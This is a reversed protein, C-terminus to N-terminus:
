DRLLFIYDVAAVASVATCDDIGTNEPGVVVLGVSSCRSRIACGVYGLLATDYRWDGSACGSDEPFSGAPDQRQDIGPVIQWRGWIASM